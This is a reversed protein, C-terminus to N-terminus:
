RRAMPVIEPLDQNMNKYKARIEVLNKTIQTGIVELMDFYHKEWAAVMLDHTKQGFPDIPIKEVGVFKAYVKAYHCAVRIAGRMEANIMGHLFKDEISMQYSLVTTGVM